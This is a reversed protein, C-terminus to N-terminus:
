NWPLQKPSHGLKQVSMELKALFIFLYFLIVVKLFTGKGWWTKVLSLGTHPSPSKCPSPCTCRITWICPSVTIHLLLPVWWGVALGTCLPWTSWAFFVIASAGNLDWPLYSVVKWPYMWGNENKEHFHMKNGLFWFGWWWWRIITTTTM